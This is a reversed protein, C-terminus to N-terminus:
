LDNEAIQKLIIFEQINSNRTKIVTIAWLIIIVIVNEWFKALLEM